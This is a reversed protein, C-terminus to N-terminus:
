GSTCLVESSFNQGGIVEQKAEKKASLIVRFIQKYPTIARTM